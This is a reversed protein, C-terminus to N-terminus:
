PSRTEISDCRGLKLLRSERNGNIRLNSFDARIVDHLVIQQHNDPTNTRVGAVNLSKVDDFVLAPRYDSKAAQLTINQLTLGEIHRVYVGWAPLEGFMSFEPYDSEKEPVRDLNGLPIYAMGKTGRGPYTIEIDSLTVGQINHGTLGAISAPFPNHFFPLDPGRLDYALDPREFPVTVRMHRITVNRLAGVEGEANRHGLRIFFANGTNTAQVDSVDVNEVVGGDVCEIAIASRYTDYVKIGTIRINRCAGRSDTGFKIASASSRITCNSISINDNPFDPSYTKLCIGDDASNVRCNTIKVNRSDCIDIGDNNWFATSVITARDIVLDSCRIYKTVWAAGNRVTVGRVTINSCRSINFLAPRVAESPRNRNKNYKPDDIKGIHYLSDIALALELGQGDFVGSGTISINKSSDARVFGLGDATKGYDFPNTSGLLMAGDLLHLDVGSKLILGGSLFIGKPVVVRGGGNENAKDIAQQISRTNLHRGNGIAGFTLINYEKTDRARKGAAPAAASSLFVIAVLLVILSPIRTNRKCGRAVSWSGTMTKDGKMLSEPVMKKEV